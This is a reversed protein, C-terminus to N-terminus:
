EGLAFELPELPLRKHLAHPLLLGGLEGMLPLGTLLYIPVGIVPLAM